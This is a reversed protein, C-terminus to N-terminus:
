AGYRKALTYFKKVNKLRDEQTEGSFGVYEFKLGDPFRRQLEFFVHM